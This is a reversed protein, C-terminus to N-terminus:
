QNKKKFNLAAVGSPFQKIAALELDIKTIDRAFLSIGSGLIVPNLMLWYDDILNHEQLQRVISPSGFLIIDQGPMSKLKEINGKLDGSIVTRKTSADAQLSESVVVKEVRNYWSSHHRSHKSANPQDGATPWYGEMMDYTVRGYLAADAQDTFDGVFDFLTDDFKIWDMEGNPGAAYGDLSTHLFIILKRM